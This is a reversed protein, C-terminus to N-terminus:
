VVLRRSENLAQVGRAQGRFPSGTPPASFKWSDGEMLRYAETEHGDVSFDGLSDPIRAAFVSQDPIEFHLCNFTEHVKQAVGVDARLNNTKMLSPRPDRFHDDSTIAHEM